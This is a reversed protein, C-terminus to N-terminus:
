STVGPFLRVGPDLTALARLEVGVQYDDAPFGFVLAHSPDPGKAPRGGSAPQCHRPDHEVYPDVGGGAAVAQRVEGVSFFAFAGSAYPTYQMVHRVRALVAERQGRTDLVMRWKFYEAWNVSLSGEGPRLRFADIEPVGTRPSVHRPICYRFVHDEDPIVYGKM